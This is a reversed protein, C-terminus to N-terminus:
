RREGGDRERRTRRPIEEITLTVTQGPRDVVGSRGAPQLILEDRLGVAPSSSM